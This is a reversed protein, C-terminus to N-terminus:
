AGELGLAGDKEEGFVEIEEWVMGVGNSIVAVDHTVCDWVCGVGENEGEHATHGDESEVVGCAFEELFIGATCVVSGWDKGVGGFDKEVVGIATGVRFADDLSV